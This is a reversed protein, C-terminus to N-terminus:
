RLSAFHKIGTLKEYKSRQEANRQTKAGKRTYM